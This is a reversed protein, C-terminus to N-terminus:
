TATIGHLRAGQLYQQTPPRSKGAEIVAEADPVQANGAHQSANPEVTEEKM